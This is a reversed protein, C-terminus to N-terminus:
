SVPIYIDFRVGKNLKGSATITGNHNEVIRKCIALGMGTGQYKEKSHLRQFVEFVRENFQPEFGIGNDSYTLHHYDVKPSGKGGKLKSRKEIENKIKIRPARESESFKLSNWILNYILQRFQLQIINAEGLNGAEVTAKKEQMIEECDKVVEAVLINLDIKEFKRESSKTSSYTLLDGILARMRGATESLRNFYEKGKDSLRSEEQKFLLSVFTQIKRLPEQLDHSSIFTFMTLEKNANELEINQKALQESRLRLEEQNRNQITLDTLIISLATNNNLSLTNVSMLVPMVKKNDAHILVEKKLSGDGRQNMLKALLENSVEDIFVKFKTGILKQLPVSVMSAFYSNCYLITGGANLMVAGENMKEILVRYTKDASQEAYVKLDKNNAIVLADINRAKIENISNTAKHLQQKLDVTEKNLRGIEKLLEKPYNERNM